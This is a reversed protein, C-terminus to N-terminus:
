RGLGNKLLLQQMQGKMEKISKIEAELTASLKSADRHERRSTLFIHHLKLCTVATWCIAFVSGFIAWALAM